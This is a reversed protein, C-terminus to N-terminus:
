YGFLGEPETEVSLVTINGGPNNANYDQIFGNRLGKQISRKALEINRNRRVRGSHSM